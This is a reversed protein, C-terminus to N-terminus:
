VTVYKWNVIGCKCRLIWQVCVGYRGYSQIKYKDEGEEWSISCSLGIENNEIYFAVRDKLKCRTQKHTNEGKNVLAKVSSRVFGIVKKM